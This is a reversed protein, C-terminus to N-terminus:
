ESIISYLVDAYEDKLFQDEGTLTSQVIMISGPGTIFHASMTEYEGIANVHYGSVSAWRVGREPDESYKVDENKLAYGAHAEQLTIFMSEQDFSGIFDKEAKVCTAKFSIKGVGPYVRTYTAEEGVESFGRHVDWYPMPEDPWITRVTPADPFTIRFNCGPGSYRYRAEAESSLTLLCALFLSFILLGCRM